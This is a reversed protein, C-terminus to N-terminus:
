LYHIINELFMRASFFKILLSLSSTRLRRVNVENDDYMAMTMKMMKFSLKKKPMEDIHMFIRGVLFTTTMENRNKKMSHHQM